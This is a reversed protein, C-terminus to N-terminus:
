LEELVFQVARRVLQNANALDLKDKIKERYSEVTKQSLQLKEAVERTSLGEGILEFVELERDSLSQLGSAHVPDRNELFRSLVRETIAPSFYFRGELVRCIAQMLSEGAEQKSVYGLAGAQLAREAYLEEDHASLVLLRADRRSAAIQKCLELGHGEKLSIDILVLDPQTEHVLRMAQGAEVAEGVVEFQDPTSELIKKVGERVLAHDDVVLVRTKAAADAQRSSGAGGSKRGARKATRRVAKRKRGATTGM